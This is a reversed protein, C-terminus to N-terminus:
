QKVNQNRDYLFKTDINDWTISNDVLLHEEIETDAHSVSTGSITMKNNDVKNQLIISEARIITNNASSLDIKTISMAMWKSM